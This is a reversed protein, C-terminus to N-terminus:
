IRLKGNLSEALERKYAQSIVVYWKDTTAFDAHGIWESIDKASWGLCVLYSACSHRLNHLTFNERGYKIMISEFHNNLYDPTFEKGDEWTFLSKSEHYTNGYFARNDEKKKIVRQFFEYMEDTIPFERFSDQSKTDEEDHIEKLRVVTRSIHLRRNEM